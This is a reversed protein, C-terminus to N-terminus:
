ALERNQLGRSRAPSAYGADRLTHRNGRICLVLPCVIRRTSALRTAGDRQRQLRLGPLWRAALTAGAREGAGRDLAVRERIDGEILPSWKAFVRHAMSLNDFVMGEHGAATLAKACHSGVYGAGRM